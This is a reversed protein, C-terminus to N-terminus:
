KKSHRVITEILPKFTVMAKYSGKGLPPYKTNTLRDYFYFDNASVPVANTTTGGAAGSHTMITQSTPVLIFRFKTKDAFKEIDNLEAIDNAVIMEYRYPYKKKMFLAADEKEKENHGFPAIMFVTNQADFTKPIWSDGSGFAMRSFCGQLCITSVLVFLLCIKVPKLPSTM